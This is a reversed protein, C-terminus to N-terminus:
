APRSGRPWNVVVQAAASGAILLPALVLAVLLLPPWLLGITWVTVIAAYDTLHRALWMFRLVPRSDPGLAPSTGLLSNRESSTFLGLLTGGIVLTALAASQASGLAAPTVVFVVLSGGIATHTLFDLIQDLWAGFSSSTGRGRALKGDACDLSAGLQWALFVLIAIAPPAPASAVLVLAAGVLNSALGAVSVMNPTISTDILLYAILAGIPHTVRRSWFLPRHRTARRNLAHAERLISGLSRASPSERSSV